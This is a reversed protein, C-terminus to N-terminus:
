YNWTEVYSNVVTKDNYILVHCFGSYSKTKHILLMQLTTIKEITLNIIMSLRVMICCWRCYQVWYNIEISNKLKLNDEQFHFM